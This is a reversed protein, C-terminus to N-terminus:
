VHVHMTSKSFTSSHLTKGAKPDNKLVWALEPSRTDWGILQGNVTAYALVSQNGVTFSICTVTVSQNGATFSICTVTVSQNGATFSICTVTISQNGATFSICTVTVSQNGAM